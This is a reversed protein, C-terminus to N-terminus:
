YCLTENNLSSHRCNGFMQLWKYVLTMEQFFQLNILKHFLFIIIIVKLNFVPILAYFKLASYARFLFPQLTYKNFHQTQIGTRIVGINGKATVQGRQTRIKGHLFFVIIIRYTRLNPGYSQLTLIKFLHTHLYPTSSLLYIIQHLRKVCIIFRFVVVM